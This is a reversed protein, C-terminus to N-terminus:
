EADDCKNKQDDMTKLDDEMAFMWRNMANIGAAIIIGFAERAQEIEPQFESMDGVGHYETPFRWYAVCVYLISMGMRLTNQASSGMVGLTAVLGYLVIWRWPDPDNLQLGAFVFLITSLVFRVIKTKSVKM